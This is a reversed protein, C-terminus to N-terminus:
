QFNSGEAFQVAEMLGANSIPVPMPHIVQARSPEYESKLLILVHYSKRVRSLAVYLQGLSIYNSTLDVLVKPLIQAQAKHVTEAFFLHVPFQM